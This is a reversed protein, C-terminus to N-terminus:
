DQMERVVLPKQNDWAGGPAREVWLGQLFHVLFFLCAFFGRFSLSNFCSLSSILPVWFQSWFPSPVVLESINTPFLHFDRDTPPLGRILVAAPRPHHPALNQFNLISHMLQPSIQVLFLAPPPRQKWFWLSLKSSLCKNLLPSHQEDFINIIISLQLFFIKSKKKRPPPLPFMEKGLSAKICSLWM